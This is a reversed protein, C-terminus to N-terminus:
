VCLTRNGKVCVHACMCMCMCLCVCVCVSMCACVCARVIVFHVCEFKSKGATKAKPTTAMKSSPKAASKDSSANDNDSTNDDDAAAWEDADDEEFEVNNTDESGDFEPNESEMAVDDDHQSRGVGTKSDQRNGRQTVSPSSSGSDNSAITAKRHQRHREALQARPQLRTRIGTTAALSSSSMSTSTSLSTRNLTSHASALPGSFCSINLM